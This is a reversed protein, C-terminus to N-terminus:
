RDKDNELIQHLNKIKEVKVCWNKNIDTEYIAPTPRTYTDYKNPM